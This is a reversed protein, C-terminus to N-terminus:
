CQQIHKNENPCTHLLDDLSHTESREDINVALQLLKKYVQIEECLAKCLNLRGILSLTKNPAMSTAIRKREKDPTSITTPPAAAWVNKHLIENDDTDNSIGGLMFNITTWDTALHETRIAFINKKKQIMQIHGNNDSSKDNKKKSARILNGYTSNFNFYNHWCKHRGQIADWALAKCNNSGSSFQTRRDRDLGEETLSQITNWCNFIAFDQCGRKHRASKVPPYSPHVYYFWSVIRDVPNRISILFNDYRDIPAPQLHVREIVYKSIASPHYNTMAQPITPDDDCQGSPHIRPDLMCTISTGATKGLHVFVIKKGDYLYSTTTNITTQEVMWIREHENM